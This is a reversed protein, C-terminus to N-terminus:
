NWREKKKSASESDPMEKLTDAMYESIIAILAMFMENNMDKISKLLGIISAYAEMFVVDGKGELEITNDVGESKHIATVKVM